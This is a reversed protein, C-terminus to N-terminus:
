CNGLRSNMINMEHFHFVTVKATTQTCGYFERLLFLSYLLKLQILVAGNMPM